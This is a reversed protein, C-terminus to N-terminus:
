QASRPDAKKIHPLTYAGSPSVPAQIAPTQNLVDMKAMHFRTYLPIAGGGIAFLIALIVSVGAGRKQALRLILATILMAAAIFFLISGIKEYLWFDGHMALLVAEPPLKSM